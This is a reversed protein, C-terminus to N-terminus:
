VQSLDPSVTQSLGRSLDPSLNLANKTRKTQLAKKAPLWEALDFPPEGLYEFLAENTVLSARVFEPGSFGEALMLTLGAGQTQLLAEHEAPITGKMMRNSSSRDGGGYVRTKYQAQAATSQGIDEVAASQAGVWCFVCYQRGLRGIKDLQKVAAPCLAFVESLED